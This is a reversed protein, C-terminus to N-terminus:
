PLRVYRALLLVVAVCLPLVLLMAISALAGGLTTVAYESRWYARLKRVGAQSQQEARVFQPMARTSWRDNRVYPTTWNWDRRDDADNPVPPPQLAHDYERRRKVDRLVAFAENVLVMKAEADPDGSVDPHYM